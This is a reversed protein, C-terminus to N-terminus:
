AVPSQSNFSTAVSTTGATADIELKQFVMGINEIMQISGAAYAVTSLGGNTIKWTFTTALDGDLFNLNRILM